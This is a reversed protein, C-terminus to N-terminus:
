VSEKVTLSIFISAVLSTSIAAIFTITVIGLSLPAFIGSNGFILQLLTHLSFAIGSGLTSIVVAQLALLSTIFLPTAGFLKFIACAESQRKFFNIFITAYVGLSLIFAFMAVSSFLSVTKSQTIQNQKLIGLFEAKTYSKLGSIKEIKQKLSSLNAFPVAKIVLFIEGGSELEKARTFNTYAIVGKQSPAVGGIKMPKENVYVVSGSRLKQSGLKFLSKACEQSVILTNDDDKLHFSGYLAKTPLGLYTSEDVGLLTCDRKDGSGTYADVQSKYLYSATQIDPLRRLKQLDQNSSQPDTKIWLDIGSSGECFAVAENQIASFSGFELFLFFVLLAVVVLPM